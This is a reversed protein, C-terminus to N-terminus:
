LFLIVISAKVACWPPSGISLLREGLQASHAQPPGTSFALFPRQRITQRRPQSCPTKTERGPSTRGPSNVLKGLPFTRAEAFHVSLSFGNLRAGSAKRSRLSQDLWVSTAALRTSELVCAWAPIRPVLATRSRPRMAAATRTCIKGLTHKQRTFSKASKLGGLGQDV